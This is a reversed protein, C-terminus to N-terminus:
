GRTKKFISLNSYFEPFKALEHPHKSYTIIFVMVGLKHSQSSKLIYVNKFAKIVNVGQLYGRLQFGTAHRQSTMSELNLIDLHNKFLTVSIM